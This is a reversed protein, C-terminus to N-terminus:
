GPPIPKTWIAALPTWLGYIAVGTTGMNRRISWALYVAFAALGLIWWGGVAAAAAGLGLMLGGGNLAALFAAKLATSLRGWAPDFITNALLHACDAFLGFRYGWWYTNGGVHRFCEILKNITEETPLERTADTPEVPAAGAAGDFGLDIGFRRLVEGQAEWFAKDGTLTGEIESLLDPQNLGEIPADPNEAALDVLRDEVETAASFGLAEM